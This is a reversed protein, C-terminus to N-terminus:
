QTLIGYVKDFINDLGLNDKFGGQANHAVGDLRYLELNAGTCGEIVTHTYNSKKTTTADKTCGNHQSWLLLADDVKMQETRDPLRSPGGDIPILRDDEGHVILVSLPKKAASIDTTPWLTSAFNAMGAVFDVCSQVVLNNTTFSSGMSGGVTFVEEKNIRSDDKVANWITRIFSVDDEATEGGGLNWGSGNRSLKPAGAPAICVYNIGLCGKIAGRAARKGQGKSSGHFTFFLPFSTDSDSFGEPTYLLLTRQSLSGQNLYSFSIEKTQGDEAFSLIEKTVGTGELTQDCSNVHAGQEQISNNNQSNDRLPRLSNQSSSQQRMQLVDLSCNKEELRTKCKTKPLKDKLCAKHIKDCTAAHLTGQSTKGNSLQDTNEDTCCFCIFMFSLLCRMTRRWIKTIM